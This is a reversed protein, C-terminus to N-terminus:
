SYLRLDAVTWWQPAAATQTIRVYRVPTGPLDVV